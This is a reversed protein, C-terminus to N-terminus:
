RKPVRVVQGVQLSLSTLHNIQRITELTATVDGGAPTSREALSWLSDGPHAQYRVLQPSPGPQSPTAHALAAVGGILGCGISVSLALVSLRRIARVNTRDFVHEIITM